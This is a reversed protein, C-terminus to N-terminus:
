VLRFQMGAARAAAGDADDRDGIVLCEAPEVGLRRAALLYGDPAPKLRAPGGHEGNAVVVAFLEALELAELKERAPYDSVLALLGGSAEHARLEAVLRENRAPRLWRCPRRIMWEGVCARVREESWRLKAATRAIQRDFPAHGDAAELSEGVADGQEERLHEHEKRFTRVCQLAGLGFVALELAMWLKLRGPNYLTGDLDVLWARASM